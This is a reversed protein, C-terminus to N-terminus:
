NKVMQKSLPTKERLVPFICTFFLFPFSIISFVTCRLQQHQWSKTFLMNSKNIFIQYKMHFLVSLSKYCIFLSRPMFHFLFTWSMPSWFYACSNWYSIMNKGSELYENVLINLYFCNAIFFLPISKPISVSVFIAKYHKNYFIYIILWILFYWPALVPTM